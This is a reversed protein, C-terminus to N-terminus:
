IAHLDQLIRVGTTVVFLITEIKRRDSLSQQLYKALGDVRGTSLARVAKPVFKPASAADEGLEQNIAAIFYGITAGSVLFEDIVSKFDTYAEGKDFIADAKRLTPTASVLQRKASYVIVRQAPNTRKIHELIGIGQQQPNERLGVGNIDLLILTFYGDTLQSLSKIDPWREIHYGDNELMSQYPWEQDDIVLIQAKKRVSEITPALASIKRDFM